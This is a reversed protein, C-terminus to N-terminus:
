VPPFTPVPMPMAAVNANVNVNNCNINNNNNNNTCGNNGFPNWNGGNFGYVFILYGIFAWFILTFLLSGFTIQFTLGDDDDSSSFGRKTFRARFPSAKEIILTQSNIPTISSITKENKSDLNKIDIIISSSTM